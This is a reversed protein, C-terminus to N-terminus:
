NGAADEADPQPPEPAEEEAALGAMLPVPEDALFRRLEREARARDPHGWTRYCGARLELVARSWPVHPEAVALVARTEASCPGGPLRRALALLLRLREEDLMRLAFPQAVAAFLRRRTGPDSTTLALERALALARGMVAPQPWPDGRYAALARELAALAEATRGQRWHLRASVALAEIPRRLGLEAALPQAEDRGAEAFAEAAAVLQTDDGPAGDQATWARLAGRLDGQSWAGVALARQRADPALGAALPRAVEDLADTSAAREAVLAWDVPGGRLEPRAAGARVAAGVVDQMTSPRRRGVTRAFGFELPTRDDTNLEALGSDRLRRMLASGAVFRSLLGELDHVRWVEAMATRYPEGAMTERLREVDHVLPLSSAVLLIDGKTTRWTEVHPFVTGLTAYVTALTESGVEYAQMWQLFLGGPRLRDRASEYFERTYLSAIGARYPNSPESFIVDYRERTTLVWERGDGMWLRVKPNDLVKRNVAACARAVEVIAPELEVADVRAITPVEGLWGASSGTGLGIVLASTPASHLLAGMLGAMVQTGADFRSHGDSKGNVMFALGVGSSLAVSSEVGEAEWLTTRRQNRLWAEIGNPSPEYATARGAGIASHRWAPSPGRALLTIAAALALAAAVLARPERSRRLRLAASWAALAALIAAALRWSGPAGLLPLLGFGGALSGLIAGLTNWLYALGVHRGVESRGRGLLAVLVPFQVGAVFAAPFVVLGAVITWATVQGAFGIAGLDRLLLALIAIRDGLALPLAVCLAEWGATLAFDVITVQRNAFLLAYAVGGAGIGALAVALILGFTFTSGGLLPALMRYWVLEMLLFAFGVAAAAVFVFSAPAGTSEEAAGGSSEERRKEAVPDRAGAGAAARSAALAIMAVLANGLCALWLTQRNGFRELLLFTAVLAGVVAGVTNAGYLLALHRRSADGATEVARAAAPLTGGMLFTPAGLVLCSLLLRLGTGGLSGLAASGGAGVYAARAALVLLPTAAAVLAVGLELRAYMALPNASRDARRGLFLGGLGLGGMFVALVAASAATSAGFVLRFERLWTTQLVLASFGSGFLLGAVKWRNV